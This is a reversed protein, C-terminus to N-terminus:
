ADLFHRLDTPMSWLRTAAIWGTELRHRSRPRKLGGHLTPPREPFPFIPTAPNSGAVQRQDPAVPYLVAARGISSCARLFTTRGAPIAGADAPQFGAMRATSRRVCLTPFTSAGSPIAGEDTPNCGVAESNPWPAIPFTTPLPPLAGSTPSGPKKQSLPKVSRRGSCRGQNPPVYVSTRIPLGVPSAGTGSGDCPGISVKVGHVADTRRKFFPIRALIRVQDEVKARHFAERVGRPRKHIFM